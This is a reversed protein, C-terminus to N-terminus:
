ETDEKREPQRWFVALQAAAAALGLGAAIAAGQWPALRRDIGLVHDVSLRGPGIAALAVSAVSLNLVYEYGEGTIFFGNPLHVARGAVALTGVVASAAIPTGAGALLVTGAGVEVAASAAAQMSPQRFGVSGFWRATGELSRGHRVGHAVMTGGLVARLVVGAVERGEMALREKVRRLNKEAQLMEAM